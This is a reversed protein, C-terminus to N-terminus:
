QISSEPAETPLVITVTTGRDEESAIGLSGGHDLVRRRAIPLGFGTGYSKKSTGGPVFRQVAALDEASMGMGNDRVVIEVTDEDLLRASVEISGEGLKEPGTAFAEYANKLVNRIATVIQYRSVEATIDAPVSVAVTVGGCDLDVAKFFDRVMGHAEEVVDALQERRRELPTVQSFSRADELLRELRDLRSQVKEIQRRLEAPDSNGSDLVERIRMTASTVPTLIGRMEHVTAGIIRDCLQEALRRAKAAVTPGHERELSAYEDQVADLGRQRREAEHRGRRRRDIAREAARRVFANSDGSLKAALRPFDEEPVLLLADAVEKRVEWKRAEALLHLLAVHTESVGEAEATEVLIRVLAQREPWPLSEPDARLRSLATELRTVNPHGDSSAM